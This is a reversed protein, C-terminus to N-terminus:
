TTRTLLLHILEVLCMGIMVVCVAIPLRADPGKGPLARGRAQPTGLTFTM